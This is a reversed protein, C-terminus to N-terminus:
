FSYFQNHRKLLNEASIINQPIRLLFGALVVCDIKYNKLMEIVKNGEAFDERLFTVSPIKLSEARQHVFADPKNSVILPFIFHESHSFYKILNEANSGSGSAFIAIRHSM